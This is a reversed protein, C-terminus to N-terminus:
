YFPNNKQSREGCRVLVDLRQDRDLYSWERIERSTRHCGVCIDDENLMCISTCPSAIPKESM